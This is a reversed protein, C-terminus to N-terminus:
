TPMRRAQLAAQITELLVARSYPKPLMSGAVPQIDELEGFSYGSTFVVPLKPRVTQITDFVQRGTRIPMAVDLLALDMASAGRVMEEAEAGNCAVLVRYGAAELVEVALERVFPDDEALLLTEGQGEAARTGATAEPERGAARAPETATPFYITFAAGAGPATEVSLLGGHREVIAYVTALGLGTGRDVGKTTFFPEFIRPLVEPPIGVGEDAVRLWIWDGPRAWPRARCDADTFAAAGTRITILGGLPMADRANLCLNMVVQEVQNPDALMAPLAATEEVRLEIHDGILRRLIRILHGVVANLDLPQPKLAERRSFTLLQTTLTAAQDAARTVQQLPGQVPHGSPLREAAVETYGRIAQLLNNFDHAIGGALQGIAEMKRAQQLQAEIRAKEEDARVQRTVDRRVTILADEGDFEIREASLLGYRLTGDPSATSTPFDRVRGDRALRALFADRASADSWFGLEMSTRGLTHGRTFGSMREFSENVDIFRGDRLSSITIVDPTARFVMRFRAEGQRREDVMAALFMLPVAMMLLLLQMSLAADPASLGAFGGSRSLAASLVIGSVVFLAIAQEVVGLRVAAWVLLPLPTYALAPFRAIDGMAGTLAPVTIAALGGLVLGAEGRWTIRRWWGRRACVVVVPVLVVLSLADSLMWVRWTPWFAAGRGQLYATTAGIAASVAPAIGAVGVIFVACDIIRNFRPARRLLLRLILLGLAVEVINAAAYGFTSRWEFHRNYLSPNGPITAVPYLWWDAAPAILAAALILANPPRIYALKDPPLTLAGSLWAGAIYATSAVM